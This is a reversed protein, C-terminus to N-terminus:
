FDTRWNIKKENEDPEDFLTQVTEQYMESLKEFLQEKDEMLAYIKEVKEPKIFKHHVKFAGAFFQPLSTMPTEMAKEAIFGEREMERVTRRTYELTYDTDEFTFTLTKAM